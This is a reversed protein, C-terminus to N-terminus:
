AVSSTATVARGKRNYKARYMAKDAAKLLNIGLKGHDPYLAVGISATVTLSIGEALFPETFADRLRETLRYVGYDSRDDVLVVFEDGGFRAACDGARVVASIRRAVETLLLDGVHHGHLDNVQKFDNLDIYAVGFSQRNREARALARDLIEQFHARNVLGTLADHTAQHRLALECRDRMMLEHRVLSHVLLAVPVLVLAAQLVAMDMTAGPLVLKALAYLLSASMVTVLPIRINAQM